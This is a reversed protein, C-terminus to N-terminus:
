HNKEQGAETPKQDTLKADVWGQIYRQDGHGLKKFNEIFEVADQKDEQSM